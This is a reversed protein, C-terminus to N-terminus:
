GRWFPKRLEQFREAPTIGIDRLEYDSLEALSRRDQVRERWVFMTERLRTLLPPVTSRLPQSATMRMTTM